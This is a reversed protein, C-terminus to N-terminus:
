FLGLSEYGIGVRFSHKVRGKPIDIVHVSGDSQCEVVSEDGRFAMDM